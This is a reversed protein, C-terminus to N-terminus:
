AVSILGQLLFKCSQASYRVKDSGKQHNDPIITGDESGQHPCTLATNPPNSANYMIYIYPGSITTFCDQPAIHSSLAMPTLQLHVACRGNDLECSVMYPCMPRHVGLWGLGLM